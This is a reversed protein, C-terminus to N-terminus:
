AAPAPPLECTAFWYACLREVAALLEDFLVPKIIFSNAGLAYAKEIDEESWSTTMVVIPLRAFREQARIRELAVLGHMRPMHLDLLVLSPWAGEDLAKM